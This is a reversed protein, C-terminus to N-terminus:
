IKLACVIAALELNHTLYNREYVMLQISAYAVAKKEQMLVCGLGLHSTECYVEFPKEVNLIVLIPASTM